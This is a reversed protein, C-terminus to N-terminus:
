RAGSLENIQRLCEAYRSQLAAERDMQQQALEAAAALRRQLAAEEDRALRQFCAVEISADAAAAAHAQAEQALAQVKAEYGRTLTEV